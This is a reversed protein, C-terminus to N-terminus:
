IKLAECESVEGGAVCREVDELLTFYIKESFAPNM